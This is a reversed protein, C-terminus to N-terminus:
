KHEINFTGNTSVTLLKKSVYNTFGENMFKLLWTLLSM